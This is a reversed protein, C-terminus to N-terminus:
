GKTDVRKKRALAAARSAKTAIRKREAPSLKLARSAGGKRGLSAMYAKVAKSVKMGLMICIPVKDTM